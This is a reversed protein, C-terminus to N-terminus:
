RADKGDKGAKVILKWSDSFAPKEVTDALALFLSGGHTVVDGRKYSGLMWPGKYFDALSKAKAAELEAIRKELADARDRLPKVMGIVGQASSEFLGMVERWTIAKGGCARLLGGYKKEVAANLDAKFERLEQETPEDAPQKM